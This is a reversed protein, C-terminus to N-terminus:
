RSLIDHRFNHPNERHIESLVRVRFDGYQYHPTVTSPKFIVIPVTGTLVAQIELVVFLRDLVQLCTSMVEGRSCSTMCYNSTIIIMCFPSRALSRVLRAFAFWDSIFGTFVLTLKWKNMITLGM